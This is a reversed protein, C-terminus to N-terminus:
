HITYQRAKRYDPTQTENRTEASYMKKKYKTVDLYVKVAFVDHCLDSISNLIVYHTTNNKFIKKVDFRALRM